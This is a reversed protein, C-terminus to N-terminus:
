TRSRIRRVRMSVSGTWTLEKHLADDNPMVYLITAFQFPPLGNKIRQQNAQLVGLGAIYEECSRAKEDNRKLSKKLWNLVFPWAHRTVKSSGMIATRKSYIYVPSLVVTGRGGAGVHCISTTKHPLYLSHHISCGRVAAYEEEATM